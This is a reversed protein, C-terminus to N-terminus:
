MCTVFFIKLSSCCTTIVSSGAIYNSSPVSELFGLWGMMHFRKEQYKEPFSNLLQYPRGEKICKKKKIKIKILKTHRACKKIIGLTNLVRKNQHTLYWTHRSCRLQSRKSSLLCTLISQLLQSMLLFSSKVQVSETLSQLTLFINPKKM